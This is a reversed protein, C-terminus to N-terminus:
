KLYFNFLLVNPIPSFASLLATGQSFNNFLAYSSHPIGCISNPDHQLLQPPLTGSSEEAEQYCHIPDIGEPSPGRRHQKSTAGM